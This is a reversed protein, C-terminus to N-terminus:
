LVIIFILNADFRHLNKHKVELSVFTIKKLADSVIMYEANPSLMGTLGLPIEPRIRIMETQM